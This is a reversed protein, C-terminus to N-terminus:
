LWMFELTENIGTPPGTVLAVGPHQPTPQKTTLKGEENVFLTANIVYKQRSDYQDTEFIGREFWVTIRGSSATSNDGPINPIRYIYSVVVRVTDPISDGDLDKNLPTGEAVTIVGNIDNLIIGEIDAVFSSRVVNAYRLEQKTNTAVVYNGYGDGVGIVPVDVVEDVVPATFASTNVDDIIGLPATGDSVGCVAENGIVKLQAIQGAQFTSTPDVPYSLPLASGVQILRLM